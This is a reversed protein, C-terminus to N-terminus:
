DFPEKAPVEMPRFKVGPEQHEPTGFSEKDWDGERERRRLFRALVLLGAVFMGAAIFGAMVSEEREGHLRKEPPAVQGSAFPGSSM